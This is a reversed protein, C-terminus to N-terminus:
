NFVIVSKAYITTLIGQLGYMMEKVSYFSTINSHCIRCQPSHSM